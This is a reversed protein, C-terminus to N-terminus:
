EAKESAILALFRAIMANTQDPEIMQIFHGAGMVQGVRWNSGLRQLTDPDTFPRDALLLLSPIKCQEAAVMADFSTTTTSIDHGVHRPTLGMEGAIRDRLAEPDDPGFLRALLFARQEEPKRDEPRGLEALRSEASRVGTDLLILGGLFDPQDVALKLLTSGGYSHGIGIPKRIGFEACLFMLDENIEKYTYGAGEPADSDGHGRVDVNLVRHHRMFQGQIPLMHSLNCTGGHVLLLPPDGVGADIYHLKLGDRTKFPM